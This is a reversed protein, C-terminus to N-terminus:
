QKADVVEQIFNVRWNNAEEVPNYDFDPKGAELNEIRNVDALLIITRLNTVQQGGLM